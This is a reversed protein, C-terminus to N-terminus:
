KSLLRWSLVIGMTSLIVAFGLVLALLTAGATLPAPFLALRTVRGFGKLHFAGIQGTGDASLTLPTLEVRGEGSFDRLEVLKPQGTTTARFGPVGPDIGGDLIAILVGRGDFTPHQTRFTDAGISRLPM